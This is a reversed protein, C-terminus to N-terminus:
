EKEGNASGTMSVGGIVCGPIDEKARRQLIDVIYASKRCSLAYEFSGHRQRPSIFTCPANISINPIYLLAISKGAYAVIGHIAMRECEYGNPLMNPGLLIHVADSSVGRACV